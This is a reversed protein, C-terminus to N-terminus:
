KTQSPADDWVRYADLIIQIVEELNHTGTDVVLDYNKPDDYSLGYINTYRTRESEVRALTERYVEEISSGDQGVRGEKQIHHYIREAATHLNLTLFVKFAEPIWHYALRSDIVLNEQLGAKRVEADVADDITHDTKAIAGLEELSIGREQAISRMFDGSSFRTYGLKTALGNGTSSKGSGPYGSLTIIHKKM